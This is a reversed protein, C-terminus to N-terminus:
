GSGKEKFAAVVDFHVALMRPATPPTSASAFNGLAHDLCSPMNEPMQSPRHVEFSLATKEVSEADILALYDKAM